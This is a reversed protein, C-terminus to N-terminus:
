VSTCAASKKASSAATCCNALVSERLINGSCAQVHEPGELGCFSRFVFFAVWWLAGDHQWYLETESVLASFSFTRVKGVELAGCKCRCALFAGGSDWLCM